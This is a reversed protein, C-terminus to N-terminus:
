FDSASLGLHMVDGASFPHQYHTCFFPIRKKWPLPWVAGALQRTVSEPRFNVTLWPLGRTAAKVTHQNVFQDVLLHVGPRVKKSIQVGAPVGDVEILQLRYATTPHQLYRWNLYDATVAVNWPEAANSLEQLAPLVPTLADTTRITRVKVKGSLLAPVALSPRLPEHFHMRARQWFKLAMDNPHGMLAANEATVLEKAATIMHRFLNKGHYQPHVLVNVVYYASQRADRKVLDVPIMAMFGIWQGDEIVTVMRARGFPNDGYLWQSYADTLLRDHPPFYSGFLTKLPDIQSQDFEAITVEYSM